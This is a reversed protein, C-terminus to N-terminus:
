HCDCVARLGAADVANASASGSSSEDLQSAAARARRPLIHSKFLNPIDRTASSSQTATRSAEETGGWHAGWAVMGSDCGRPKRDGTAAGSFFFRWVVTWAAQGPRTM